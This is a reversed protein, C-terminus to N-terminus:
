VRPVIEGASKVICDSPAIGRFSTLPYVATRRGIVTGPNLVCQCGIDVGDGLMAGVKRLGSDYSIGCRDRIVVHSGGIKLNSAIAGAGMHAHNGVVSDGVYTYHPLAAHNLIVCNKLETSNGIVCDEGVLVNGRIYAGPRVETRAGIVAPGHIEATDAVRATVSVAVDPAPHTWEEGTLSAALETVYAGILPLIEWPYKRQCLLNEAMTGGYDYLAESSVDIM